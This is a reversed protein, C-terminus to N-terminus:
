RLGAAPLIEGHLRSLPSDHVFNDDGAAIRAFQALEAGQQLREAELRNRLRRQADGFRVFGMDREDFVCECLCAVGRLCGPQRRQGIIGTEARQGQVTGRPHVRRTVRALRFRILAVVVFQDGREAGMGVAACEIVTRQHQHHLGVIRMRQDGVRFPVSLHEIGRAPCATETVVRIEEQRFKPQRRGFQCGVDLIADAM